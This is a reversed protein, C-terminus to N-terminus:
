LEWYYSIRLRVGQYIDNYPVKGRDLIQYRYELFPMLNLRQFHYGVGAGYEYWPDNGSQDSDFLDMKWSASPAFLGSFQLIVPTADFEHSWGIGIGLATMKESYDGASVQADTDMEWLKIGAIISVDKWITYGGIIDIDYREAEQDVGQFESSYKKPLHYLLTLWASNYTGGLSIGPCIQPDFTQTGINIDHTWDAYWGSVGVSFIRAASANGTVFLVVVSFVALVTMLQKM